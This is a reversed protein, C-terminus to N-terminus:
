LGGGPQEERAREGARLAAEAERQCEALNRFEIADAGHRAIVARFGDGASFDGPVLKLKPRGLDDSEWGTEEQGTPRNDRDLVPRRWFNKLQLHSLEHDLTAVKQGYRLGAWAREDILVEADHSKTVRDKLAVVRVCALAAYGAHKIAPGSPNSAFLCAIRVGADRLDPHWRDMVDALLERVEADAITYTTPM